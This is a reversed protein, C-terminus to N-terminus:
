MCGLSNIFMNQFESQIVLWLIKLLFRCYHCNDLMKGKYNWDTKLNLWLLLINNILICGQAERWCDIISDIM